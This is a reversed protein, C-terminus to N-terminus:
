PATRGPPDPWHGHMREGAPSPAEVNGTTPPVDRRGLSAVRFVPGVVRDYVFPFLRFGSIIVPNFPGVPVSVNQKPREALRFVNEGVKEPKTVPWPPRPRRGVYNAAQYYIPTNISGPSILCVRVGKDRRVEQQLTRVLARQGWKSTAYAVMNPVAISGLLSNVVILTGGGQKRFVPLVARAINATGFVAVRVVDEFVEPPVSEVTGYAMVSASVVVIDLRGHREVTRDVAADVGVRDVIDVAITDVARAGERHCTTAADELTEDSRAALVLRDGAQAFRAAAALGIGSTAGFILVVRGAGTGAVSPQDAATVTEPATVATTPDSM